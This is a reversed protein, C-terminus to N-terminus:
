GTMHSQLHVFLFISPYIASSFLSSFLSIAQLICLTKTKEQEHTFLLSLDNRLSLSPLSTREPSLSLPRSLPQKPFLSCLWRRKAVSRASIVSFISSRLMVDVSEDDESDWSQAPPPPGHGRPSSSPAAEGDSQNQREETGWEQRAMVHLAPFDQLLRCIVM